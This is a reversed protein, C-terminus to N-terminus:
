SRVIEIKPQEPVQVLPEPKADPLTGTSEEFGRTLQEAAVEVDLISSAVDKWVFFPIDLVLQPQEAESVTIKILRKEADLDFNYNM